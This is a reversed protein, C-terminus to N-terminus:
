AFISVLGNKSPTALSEPLPAIVVNEDQETEYAPNDKRTRDQMATWSGSPQQQSGDPNNQLLVQYSDIKMDQRQLASKIDEGRAQLLQQVDAHDAVMIVEVRNQRVIVDLDVTGLNPPALTIKIRGSDNPMQQRAEVIQDILAQAKAGSMADTEAIKKGAVAAGEGFPKMAALTAAKDDTTTKATATKTRDKEMEAAAAYITLTEKAPAPRTLTAQRVAAEADLSAAARAAEKQNKVAEVTKKATDAAFYFTEKPKLAPAAEDRQLVTRDPNATIKQGADGPEAGKAGIESAFPDSPTDQRQGRRDHSSQAKEAVPHGAHNAAQTEEGTQVPGSVESSPDLPAPAVKGAIEPIIRAQSGQSADLGFQSRELPAPKPAEELLAEQAPAQNGAKDAEAAFSPRSAEAPERTKEPRDEAAAAAAMTQPSLTTRGAPPPESLNRRGTELDAGASPSASPETVTDPSSSEGFAPMGTEQLPPAPPAAAELPNRTGEKLLDLPPDPIIGTPGANVTQGEAQPSEGHLARGTEATTKETMEAAANAPCGKNAGEKSSSGAEVAGADLRKAPIATVPPQNQLATEQAEQSAANKTSAPDKKTQTTPDVQRATGSSQCKARSAKKAERAAALGDKETSLPDTAAPAQTKDATVAADRGAAKNIALSKEKLFSDFTVNGSPGSKRATRNEAPRLFNALDLTKATGKAPQETTNMDSGIGSKKISCNLM